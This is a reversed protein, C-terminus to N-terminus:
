QLIPTTNNGKSRQQWISYTENLHDQITDIMQLVLAASFGDPLFTLCADLVLDGNAACMYKFIKYHTNTSNIYNLMEYLNDSDICGALVRVRITVYISKDFVISFPLTDDEVRLNSYFVVTQLADDVTKQSFFTLNHALLYQAFTEAKTSARVTESLAPAKESATADSTKVTCDKDNTNDM